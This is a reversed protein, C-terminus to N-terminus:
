SIKILFELFNLFNIFVMLESKFEADLNEIIKFSVFISAAALVHTHFRSVIEYDHLLMKLLYVCVKRLYKKTKASIQARFDLFEIALASFENLTPALLSFQLTELIEQEKLKIASVSIKKHAIKEHVLKLKFPYIEEYKSAIFM